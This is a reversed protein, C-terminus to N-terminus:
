QERNIVKTYFRKDKQEHRQIYDNFILEQKPASLQINDTYFGKVSRQRFAEYLAVACAVSINLSEVMGVQPIIFNGDSFAATEPTLGIRENGFLFAISGTLDLEYLSKSSETLMTSYVQEYNQKVHEFCAAADTYYHVDVWRRAGSSTRKGLKLNKQKLDEETQLIFLENIGISDCSRLVAGLNHLDYVNELIVTINLQRRKAVQKFKELRREKM